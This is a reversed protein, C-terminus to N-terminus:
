NGAVKILNELDLVVTKASFNDIIHERARDGMDELTKKNCCKKIAEVLSHIDGTKFIVGTVGNKVYINAGVTDSTITARGCAMAEPVVMGIAENYSPLILVDHARYLAPMDELSMAERFEISERVGIEHALKSINHLRKDDRSICTVHVKYGSGRLQSLALFMDKHRKYPSYRANFLIKLTNGKYFEHESGGKAFLETDIPAPVMIRKISPLNESLFERAQETYVLMADVHRKNAKFYYFMLKKIQRAVFNKPWNKTESVVFFQIEPTHKKHFLAQLTYWHYFECTILVNPNQLNLVHSFNEIYKQTRLERGIFNKIKDVSFQKYRIRVGNLRTNEPLSKEPPLLVTVNNREALAFLFYRFHLKYPVFLIKPKHDRM